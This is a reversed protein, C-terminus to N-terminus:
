VRSATKKAFFIEAFKKRKEEQEDGRPDVIPLEEIDIHNEAAISRIKNENGLLIPYAVGEDYVIQATKLIKLNDAEAFVIASLNADRETVLFM